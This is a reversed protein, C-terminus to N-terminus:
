KKRTHYFKDKKNRLDASTPPYLKLLEDFSMNDLDLETGPGVEVDKLTIEIPRSKGPIATVEYEQGVTVFKSLEAVYGDTVNSIHLLETSGDEMRMIVGYHLLFEAKCRYRHGIELKM